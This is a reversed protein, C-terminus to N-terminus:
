RRRRCGGIRCAEASRTSSVPIAFNCCRPTSASRRFTIGSDHLGRLIDLSRNMILDGLPVILGTEEAVSIMSPVDLPGVTPHHWRLLSEIGSVAGSRLNVIPQVALAVNQGDIMERLHREIDLRELATARVTTDFFKTTAGGAAKAGYMAADADRLIEAPTVSADTAVAIGISTYSTLRQGALVFPDSLAQHMRDTLAVLEDRGLRNVVM